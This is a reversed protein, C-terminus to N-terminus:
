AISVLYQMLKKATNTLWEHYCLLPFTMLFFNLFFSEYSSFQYVFERVRCSHVLTKLSESKLFSNLVFCPLLLYVVCKM